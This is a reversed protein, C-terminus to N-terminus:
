TSFIFIVLFLSSSTTLTISSIFFAPTLINLPPYTAVLSLNPKSLLSPKHVLPYPISLSFLKAVDHHVPLLIHLFIFSLLVLLLSNNTALLSLLYLIIHPLIHYTSIFSSYSLLVLPFALALHSV